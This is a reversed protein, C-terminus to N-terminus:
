TDIPVDSGNWIPRNTRRVMENVYRNRSRSSAEAHDAVDRGIVSSISVNIAVVDCPPHTTVSYTCCIEGKCFSM